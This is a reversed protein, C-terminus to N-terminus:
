KQRKAPKAWGGQGKKTHVVGNCQSDVSGKMYVSFSRWRRPVYFWCADHIIGMFGIQWVFTSDCPIGTLPHDGKKM